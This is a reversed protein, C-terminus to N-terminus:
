TSKDLKNARTEIDEALRLEALAYLVFVAYALNTLGDSVQDATLTEFKTKGMMKLLDAPSTWQKAFQFMEMARNNIQEIDEDTLFGLDKSM